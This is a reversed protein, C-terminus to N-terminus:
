APHELRWVRRSYGVGYLPPGATFLVMVPVLLHLDAIFVCAAILGLGGLVMLRAVVRHTKDWVRADRLTWPTRVGFVQNHRIKGLYNGVAILLAAVALFVMRVVDFDPNMLREALAVQVVFFVGALCVMLVGYPMISRDLAPDPRLTPARALLGVVIAAIAPMLTLAYVKALHGTEPAGFGQHYPLFANAPLVAYAWVGVLMSAVVFGGAALISRSLTM